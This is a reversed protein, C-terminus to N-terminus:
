GGKLAGWSPGVCPDVLGRSLQEGPLLAEFAEEMAQALAAQADAANERAVELLIEDHVVHVLWAKLSDLAPVIRAIAENLVEAGTGQIPSNLANTWSRKSDVWLGGRTKVIPDADLQNSIRQHYRKLGPYAAFFASRYRSAEELTLNLGYSKKAYERFGKTGMGYLLGFNLAKALSRQEKSVADVAVGLVKSATLSHLDEGSQFVRKMTPEPAMAAAIRLEIQSFDAGVLVNGPKAVFLERFRAERKSSPPNQLNPARCCYRGSLAGALQFQAHIRGTVPHVHRLFTRFQKLLSEARLYAVLGAPCNEWDLLVDAGTELGGKKTKPWRNIEDDGLKARLWREKQKSSNLNLSALEPTAELTHRAKDLEETWEISLASCREVDFGIGNLMMDAVAPLVRELRLYAGWQRTKELQAKLIPYFRAVVWADMAAYHIQEQTLTEATGWGDAQMTKDLNIGLDRSCVTALSRYPFKDNVVGHSVRDMLMADALKVTVGAMRLFQHEFVANYAVFHRTELVAKLANLEVSHLDFVWAETETSIQVSRIQGIRPDLGGAFTTTHEQSRQGLAIGPALSLTGDVSNAVHQQLTDGYTEIDLGLVEAKSNEIAHLAALLDPQTTIYHICPKSGLRLEDLIAQRHQRVFDRREENLLGKPELSIRDGGRVVASLGWGQLQQLPSIM